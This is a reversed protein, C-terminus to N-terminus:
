KHLIIKFIKEKKRGNGMAEGMGKRGVRTGVKRREKEGEGM